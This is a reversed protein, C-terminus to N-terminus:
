NLLEIEPRELQLMKINDQTLDSRFWRLTRPANRVFKILTNQPVVDVFNSLMDSCEANRISVRKLAECCYHFIFEDRRNELDSMGDQEVAYYFVSDYMIIEKVYKCVIACTTGMWCSM